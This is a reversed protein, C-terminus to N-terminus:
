RKNSKPSYITIIQIIFSIIAILIFLIDIHQPMLSSGILLVFAIIFWIYHLIMKM